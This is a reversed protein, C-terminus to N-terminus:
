ENAPKRKKKPFILKKAKNWYHFFRRFELEQSIEVFSEEPVIEIKSTQTLEPLFKEEFLLSYGAPFYVREPTLERFFALTESKIIQVPLELLSEYIFVLRKFSYGLERFYQDDWVYFAPTKPPALSFVPHDSRLAREHLCIIEIQNQALSNMFASFDLSFVSKYSRIVLM